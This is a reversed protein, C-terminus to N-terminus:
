YNYPRTLPESYMINISIQFATRHATTTLNRSTARKLERKGGFTTLDRSTARKLERKVNFTMLNTVNIWFVTHNGAAFYVSLVRLIQAVAFLITSLIFFIQLPMRNNFSKEKYITM